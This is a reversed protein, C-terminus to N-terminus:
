IWVGSDEGYDIYGVYDGNVGSRVEFRNAGLIPLLVDEEALAGDLLLDRLRGVTVYQDHTPALPKNHTMAMM